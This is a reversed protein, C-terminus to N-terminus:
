NSNGSSACGDKPKSAGTCGAVQGPLQALQGVGKVLSGGIDTAAEGWTRKKKAQVDIPTWLNSQVYAFADELTAGEPADVEFRQGDPANVEYRPM